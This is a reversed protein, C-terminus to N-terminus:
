LTGGLIEIDKAVSSLEDISILSEINWYLTDTYSYYCQYCTMLFKKGIVEDVQYKGDKLPLYRKIVKEFKDESKYNDFIYTLRITNPNDTNSNIYYNKLNTDFDFIVSKGGVIINKLEALTLIKKNNSM